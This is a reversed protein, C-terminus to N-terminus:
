RVNIIKIDLDLKNWIKDATLVDCKHLKAAALCFSDGTSIGYERNRIRIDAALVAEETSSNLIESINSQVIQKAMSKQMGDRLLVALVESLNVVHMASDPIFSEFDFNSNEDYIAALFASSDIIYKKDM